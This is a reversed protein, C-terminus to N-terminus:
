LPAAEREIQARTEDRAHRLGSATLIHVPCRLLEELERQLAAQEFLSSRKGMEVLLDLDSDPRADERAVSGFVRVARAGHRGAVREIEARRRRLEDLSPAAGSPRPYPDPPRRREIDRGLEGLRHLAVYQREVSSSM